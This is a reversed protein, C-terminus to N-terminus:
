ENMPQNMSLHISSENLYITQYFQHISENILPTGLNDYLMSPNGVSFSALHNISPQHISTYTYQVHVNFIVPVPLHVCFLPFFIALVVYIAYVLSFSPFYPPVFFFFSFSSIHSHHSPHLTFLFSYWGERGHRNHLIAHTHNTCNAYIGLSNRACRGPRCAPLLFFGDQINCRFQPFSLLFFLPRFGCWFPWALLPSLNRSPSAPLPLSLLLCLEDNTVEKTWNGEM